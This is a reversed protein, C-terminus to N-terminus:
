KPGSPQPPETPAPMVVGTYAPMGRLQSQQVAVPRSLAMELTTGPQFVLDAGHTFFMTLVGVAAGAGAGIGSGAGVHGIGDGILSGVGVGELTDASVRQADQRKNGGQEVTGEANVVKAGGSVPAKDLSGSLTIEAGNPFILSAIRMQLQGRGKVKGPRRVSEIFGKVYMGAPLVVVGDQVVPFLTDFYVPDGPMASRTSIENKLSLLIRTGPPVTYTKFQDRAIPPANSSGAVPGAPIPAQALVSPLIGALALCGVISRHIM